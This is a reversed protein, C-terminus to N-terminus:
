IRIAVTERGNVAVRFLVGDSEIEFIHVVLGLNLTEPADHIETSREMGVLEKEDGFYGVRYSHIKLSRPLGDLGERTKAIALGLAGNRSLVLPRKMYSKLKQVIGQWGNLEDNVEKGMFLLQLLLVTTPPLGLLTVFAPIDAGPGVNGEEFQCGLEEQLKARHKASEAEWADDDFRGYTEDIIAVLVTAADESPQM